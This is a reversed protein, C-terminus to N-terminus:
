LIKQTVAAGCLGAEKITKGSETIPKPPFGSVLQSEGQVPAVSMVYAQLDGVTHTHNLTLTDREGNHFRIQLTTTPQSDDVPPKGAAAKDVSGGVGSTGGMSTGQGSYAVYKPPPPPTYKESRKDELSVGVGKGRYKDQIERPVYGENLEKMFQQNEPAEYDRFEGGDVQFGNQWLTIKLDTKEGGGSAAERQGGQRAKEV